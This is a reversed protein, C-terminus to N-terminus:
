NAVVVKYYMYKGGNVVCGEQRGIASGTLGMDGGTGLALVNTIANTPPIASSLDNYLLNNITQCTALVINDVGVITDAAPTSVETVVAARGMAWACGTEDACIKKPVAQTNAYGKTPDFLGTDVNRDFTVTGAPVGDAMIRNFGESLDSGQKLLVSANMKNQQSSTNSAPTSRNAFALFTVVIAILAIGFLIPGAIFGNQLSKEKRANFRSIKLM